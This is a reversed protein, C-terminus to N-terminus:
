PARLDYCMLVGQSRLYLRGEYVVPHAWAERQNFAPRFSGLEQYGNPSAEVFAVVGNQYRFLLRGDVWLLAASERGQSHRESGWRIKGTKWEICTPIGNNHGAGAYIYDGDVVMGGHHNQFTTGDIFYVEKVRLNSGSKRIELLAAGAGYGTSVFVQDDKVLPTPINATGNNVREYHWLVKGTEADVGVLAKGVLNIYQRVGAAESVVAGTYGAGPQGNSGLDPTQTKWIVDGTKVDLAAMLAEDGGPTVILRNGDVLPGESYGWQSMMRGGFDESFNKKWLEKGTDADAAILTGQNDIAFVRGDAYTPTGNPEGAGFPLSWLERGDKVDLAILHCGGRGGQTFIKGDAIAVSSFGGGLGDIQWLLPPGDAPLEKLLGRDSSRADRKPGRWGSWDAAGGGSLATLYARDEHSLQEPKLAIERGDDERVLKVTTGDYSSVKLRVPSARGDAMQWPRFDQAPLPLAALLALCILSPVGGIRQSRSGIHRISSRLCPTIRNRM